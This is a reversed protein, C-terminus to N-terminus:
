YFNMIVNKVIGTNLLFFLVYHKTFFHQESNIVWNQYFSKLKSLLICYMESFFLIHQEFLNNTNDYM